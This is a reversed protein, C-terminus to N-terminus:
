LGGLADLLDDYDAPVTATGRKQSTKQPKGTTKSAKKKTKGKSGTPDSVAPVKKQLKILRGQLTKLRSGVLKLEKALIRDYDGGEKTGMTAHSRVNMKLAQLRGRINGVNDPPAKRSTRM